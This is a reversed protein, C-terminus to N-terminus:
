AGEWVVEEWFKGILIRLSSNQEAFNLPGFSIDKSIDYGGM